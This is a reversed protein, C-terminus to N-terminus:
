WVDERLGQEIALLLRAVSQDYLYENQYSERKASSYLPYLLMQNQKIAEYSFRFSRATKSINTLRYDIDFECHLRENPFPNAVLIIPLMLTATWTGIFSDIFVDSEDCNVQKFTIVVDAQNNPVPIVLPHNKLAKEFGKSRFSDPVYSQFAAKIPTRPLTKALDKADIGKEYNLITYSCGSLAGMSMIILIYLIRM